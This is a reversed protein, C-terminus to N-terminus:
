TIDHDQHHTWYNKEWNISPSALKLWLRGLIMDFRGIDTGLVTCNTKAIRGASDLTFVDVTYELYTQLPKGDIGRPRRIPTVGNQLYLQKVQLQSILNFPSGSDIVASLVVGTQDPM